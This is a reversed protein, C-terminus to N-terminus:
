AFRKEHSGLSGRSKRVWLHPPAGAMNQLAPKEVDWHSQLLQTLSFFRYLSEKFVCVNCQKGNQIASGYKGAYLGRTIRSKVFGAPPTRTIYPHPSYWCNKVRLLIEIYNKKRYKRQKEKKRPNDRAQTCDTKCSASIPQRAQWDHLFVHNATSCQPRARRMPQARRSKRSCLPQPLSQKKKKMRVQTQKRITQIRKHTAM